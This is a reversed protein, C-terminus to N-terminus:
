VGNKNIYRRASSGRMRKTSSVQTNSGDANKYKRTTTVNVSKNDGRLAHVMDSAGASLLGGFIPALLFRYVSWITFLSVIVVVLPLSDNIKFFTEWCGEIAKLVISFGESM